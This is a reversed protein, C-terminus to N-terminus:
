KNLAFKSLVGNNRILKINIILVDVAADLQKFVLENWGKRDTAKSSSGNARDFAANPDVDQLFNEESMCLILEHRKNLALQLYNTEVFASGTL